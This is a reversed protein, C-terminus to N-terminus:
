RKHMVAEKEREVVPGINVMAFVVVAHSTMKAEPARSITKETLMFNESLKVLSTGETRENADAMRLTQSMLM